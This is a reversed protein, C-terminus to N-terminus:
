PNANRLSRENRQAKPRDAVYRGGVFFSRDQQSIEAPPETDSAIFTLHILIYFLIFNMGPALTPELSGSLAVALSLLLVPFLNTRRSFVYVVWIVVGWLITAGVIGGDLSEQLISNHAHLYTRDSLFTSFNQPIFLYAGSTVHGQLGHGFLVSSIGNFGDLSLDMWYTTIGDWIKERGEFTSISRQNGGRSLLASGDLVGALYSTLPRTLNTLLPLLLAFAAVFPAALRTARPAVLVGSALVLVIIFATRNNAALLAFPAALLGTWHYWFIRQRRKLMAIIAVFLAAAVYPTENVSQAFPFIVREDFFPSSTEFGVLRASAHPSTIGVMWGLINAVLYLVMGAVLSEFASQPTFVPRLVFFILFVLLLSAAYSYPGDRFTFVVTLFLGFVPLYNMQSATIPPRQAKIAASVLLASILGLQAKNGMEASLFRGISVVLLILVLEPVLYPKPDAIILPAARSSRM